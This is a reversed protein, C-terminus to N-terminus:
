DYTITTCTTSRLRNWTTSCNPPLSVSLDLPKKAEKRLRDLAKNRATTILWGVPSPPIGTEPWKALAIAFAQQVAEEAFSIDGLFRTLM